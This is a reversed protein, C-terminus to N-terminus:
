FIVFYFPEGWLKKVKLVFQRCFTSFPELVCVCVCVYVYVCVCVCVCVCVTAKSM